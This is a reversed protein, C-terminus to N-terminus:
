SRSGGVVVEMQIRSPTNNLERVFREGLRWDLM